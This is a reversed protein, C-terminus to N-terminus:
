CLSLFNLVSCSLPEVHGTVSCTVAGTTSGALTAGNFIDYGTVFVDDTSATWSLNVTTSTISASELATSVTPAQTDIIAAQVNNSFGFTINGQVLTAVCLLISLYKKIKKM